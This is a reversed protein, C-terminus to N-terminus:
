SAEGKARSLAADIISLTGAGTDKIGLRDQLIEVQTRAEILAEFMEPAAAILYANAEARDPGVDVAEVYAVRRAQDSTRIVMSWRDSIDWPGTTYKAEKSM